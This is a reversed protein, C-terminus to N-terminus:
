RVSFAVFFSSVDGTSQLFVHVSIGM